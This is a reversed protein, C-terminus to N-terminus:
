DLVNAINLLRPLDLIVIQKDSSTIIKEKNFESIMRIATETTTGAISAIDRRLISTKITKNDNGLGFCEKLILIAEAVREKVRKQAMNMVKKEANKLDHSLLQITKLSFESNNRLTKFLSDYPIFCVLADHMVTATANYSENSLLARYGIIEQEKAFRVIQEKGSEGLKSIKVKGKHICFLGHPYNGEYFIIQGKKYQIHSKQKSLEDLEPNSLSCFFSEGLHECEKCSPLIHNKNLM